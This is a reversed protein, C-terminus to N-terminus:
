PIEYVLFEDNIGRLATKQLSPHLGQLRIIQSAEPNEVVANTAFIARSVALGQVRSAINV